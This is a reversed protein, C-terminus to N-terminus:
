DFWNPISVNMDIPNGPGKFFRKISGTQFRFVVWSTNCYPCIPSKISGTQFRFAIIKNGEVDTAVKLRVLKSDFWYCLLFRDSESIGKLRVLKSDFSM